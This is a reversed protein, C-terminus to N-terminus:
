IRKKDQHEVPATVLNSIKEKEEKAQREKLIEELSEKNVDWFFSNLFWWLIKDHFIYDGEGLEYNVLNLLKFSVELDMVNRFMIYVIDEAPYRDYEDIMNSHELFTKLDTRVIELLSIVEEPRNIEYEM